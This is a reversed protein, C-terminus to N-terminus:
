LLLLEQSTQGRGQQGGRARGDLAPLPQLVEEVSVGKGPLRGKGAVLDWRGGLGTFCGLGVEIKPQPKYFIQLYKEFAEEKMEKTPRSKKTVSVKGKQVLELDQDRDAMQSLGQLLIHPELRRQGERRGGMSQGMALSGRAWDSEAKPM